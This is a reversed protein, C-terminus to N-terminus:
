EFIAVGRPTRRRGGLQADNAFPRTTRRRATARDDSAFRGSNITQGVGVVVRFFTSPQEVGRQLPAPQCNFGVAQFLHLKLSKFDPGILM